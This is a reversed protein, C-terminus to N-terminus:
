LREISSNSKNVRIPNNDANQYDDLEVINSGNKTHDVVTGTKGAYEKDAVLRVRTGVPFQCRSRRTRAPTESQSRPGPRSRARSIGSRSRDGSPTASRSRVSRGHTVSAPQPAVGPHGNQSVGEDGGEDSTNETESLLFHFRGTLSSETFCSLHLSPLSFPSVQQSPILPVRLITESCTLHRLVFLPM